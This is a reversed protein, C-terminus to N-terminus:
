KTKRLQQNELEVGFNGAGLVTKWNKTQIVLRSDGAMSWFAEMKVGDKALNRFASQLNSDQIKKFKIKSFEKM